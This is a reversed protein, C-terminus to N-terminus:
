YQFVKPEFVDDNIGAQVNQKLEALGALGAGSVAQYTSVIVRKLGFEKFIPNIAVAMIITSCNPNAIVGKHEAIDEINVEPVVLPVEDDLRFAYSNDIVLCNNEKALPALAKSVDTGVAFFALQAEAFHEARAAQVTLKTGQFLIQTGAEQPDALLMIDELQLNREEIIKLLERGVAGTAGVVALKISKGM